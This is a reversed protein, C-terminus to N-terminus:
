LCVISCTVEACHSEVLTGKLYTYLTVLLTYHLESCPWKHEVASIREKMANLTEKGQRKIEERRCGKCKSVQNPLHSPGVMIAVDQFFLALLFQLVHRRTSRKASMLYNSETQSSIIPVANWSLELSLFFKVDSVSYRLM